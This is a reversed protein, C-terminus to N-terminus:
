RPQGVATERRAPRTRGACEVFCCPHQSGGALRTHALAQTCYVIREHRGQTRPLFTGIRCIQWTSAEPINEGTPSGSCFAYAYRQDRATTDSVARQLPGTIPAPAWTDSSTLPETLESRAETRGDASVLGARTTRTSGPMAGARSLYFCPGPTLPMLVPDPFRKSAPRSDALLHARYRLIGARRRGGRGSSCKGMDERAAGAPLAVGRWCSMFVRFPCHVSCELRFCARGGAASGDPGAHAQRMEQWRRCALHRPPYPHSRSAGRVATRPLAISLMAAKFVPCAAQFRHHGIARALQESVARAGRAELQRICHHCSSGAATGAVLTPHSGMDRTHSSCGCRGQAGSCREQTGTILARALWKRSAGLRAGARRESSRLARSVELHTARTLPTHSPLASGIRTM